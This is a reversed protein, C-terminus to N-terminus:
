VISPEESTYRKKGKEGEISDFRIKLPVTNM